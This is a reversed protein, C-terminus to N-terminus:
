GLRAHLFHRQEGAILLKWLGSLHGLVKETGRMLMKTLGIGEEKWAFPLSKSAQGARDVVAVPTSNAVLDSPRVITALNRNARPAIDVGVRKFLDHVSKSCSGLSQNEAPALFSFGRGQLDHAAKGLGAIQESTMPAKPRAVVFASPKLRRIGKAVLAEPSTISAGEHDMTDFFQGGPLVASAHSWSDNLIKAIGEPKSRWLVIDGPRALRKLAAVQADFAKPDQGRIYAVEPSVVASNPRARVYTEAAPREKPGVKGQALLGKFVAQEGPDLRGDMAAATVLGRFQRGTLQGRQGELLTGMMTAAQAM